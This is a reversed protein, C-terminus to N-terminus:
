WIRNIGYSDFQKDASIVTFGETRAQAILLRDFPDRHYYQRLHKLHDGSIHLQAYGSLSLLEEFPIHLILKGLSDKISIEWFSAISIFKVNSTSLIAQKAPESIQADGSEFWLFAHTDVLLNM